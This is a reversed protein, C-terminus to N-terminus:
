VGLRAATIRRSRSAPPRRFEFGALRRAARAVAAPDRLSRGTPAIHASTADIMTHDEGLLCAAGM